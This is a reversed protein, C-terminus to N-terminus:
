PIKKQSRAWQPQNSEIWLEVLNEFEKVKLVLEVVESETVVSTADYEVLNRKRRCADFYITYTTISPGIALELAEFSTQHHGSVASVRYGTCAVVMQTLKLAASYLCAFQRDTSLGPVQADLIDRTVVARLQGIEAASTM